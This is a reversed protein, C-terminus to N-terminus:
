SKAWEEEYRLTNASQTLTRVLRDPLAGHGSYDSAAPNLKWVGSFDPQSHAAAVCTSLIVLTLFQM